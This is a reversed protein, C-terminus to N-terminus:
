GSPRCSATSRGSSVTPRCVQAAPRRVQRALLRPAVAASDAATRSDARVRQVTAFLALRAGPNMLGPFEKAIRILGHSVSGGRAGVVRRRGGNGAAAPLATLKWWERTKPDLAMKAMDAVYDAGVYEFTGFLLGDRYYITYNRMNCDHIMKLVDPWVAAHLRKYEELKEPRVRIISAYRKM